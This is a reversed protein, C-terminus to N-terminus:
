LEYRLDLGPTFAFLPSSTLVEAAFRGIQEGDQTTARIRMEPSWQPVAPFFLLTVSVNVGLSLHETLRVGAVLEPELFLMPFLGSQVLPGVYAGGHGARTDSVSGLGVGASLGVRVPSSEGFRYQARAGGLFGHIAVTDRTTLTLNGAGSDLALTATRGSVSQQLGLYGLTLGLGLRGTIPYQGQLAVRAGAGLGVQCGQGCGKELDGGFSPALAVGAHLEIAIRRPPAWLPSSPDRALPVSITQEEEPRLTIKRSDPLYGEASLEIVHEGPPLSGEYGGKGVVVGDLALRATAPSPLVRIRANEASAELPVAATEGMKVVVRKPATSLAHSSSVAASAPADCSAGPGGGRSSPLPRLEVTHEGASVPGEWPTEGVAVGDVVVEMKRGGSEDVRLRGSPISALPALKVTITKGSDHDRNKPDPAAIEVTEEHLTFGEKYVKVLHDGPLLPIPSALPHRGRERGDVVILADIEAGTVMLTGTQERLQGILKKLDAVADRLEKQLGPQDYRTRASELVELAEDLRGLNYLCFGEGRLASFTPYTAWAKRFLPLALACDTEALKKAKGYLTNAQARATEDAPPSAAPAAASAPASPQAPPPAQATGQSAPPPSSPAAPPSGKAPPAAGSRPPAATTAAAPARAPQGLIPTACLLASGALAATTVHRLKVARWVTGSRQLSLTM